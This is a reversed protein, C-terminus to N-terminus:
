QQEMFDNVIIQVSSRGNFTNIQPYYLIKLRKGSNILAELEDAERGFYLADVSTGTEDTARMKLFNGAKGIRRLQTFEVMRQAFVPKSNGNGFPELIDLENILEFTIANFPLAVDIRVITELEGPKVDTNSNIAQIFKELNEKPLTLGAAMPHGGFKTFLEKCKCMEEYMSFGEMSRGSGKLGNGDEADTLAFCPMDYRERLRGAILGMISEHTQPVYVVLVVDNKGEAANNIREEVDACAKNVGTETMLKREDNMEVLERALRDAEMPDKSELLELAKTASDLRGTANICPGLRFGIHYAEIKNEALDCHKILAKMGLNKTHQLEKLGLSVITRNEGILEMIDGITAFAANEIFIDAESKDLGMAPYLCQILKWAVVAGCIGKFPYPCDAQHPNVIADAAPLIYRRTFGQSAGDESPVDEFPVEHHDTVVVTIGAEKAFAIEDRAAIGNDCTIILGIGDEICREVLGRSLGYGDEVRHPIAVSVEAGCALLGQHLIYSASVGDIDYDGIIRISQNEAIAQKLLAVAKQMDKMLSGDHIYGPAPHLYEQIQGPTILGRNVLLRAVVPHIGYDSSMQNFDAKKTYINWKAM